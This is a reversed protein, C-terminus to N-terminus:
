WELDETNLFDTFHDLHKLEAEKQLEDITIENKWYRKFADITKEKMAQPIPPFFNCTLHTELQVIRETATIMAKDYCDICFGDCYELSTEGTELEIECGKCKM